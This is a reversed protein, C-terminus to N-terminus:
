MSYDSFILYKSNLLFYFLNIFLYYLSQAVVLDNYCKIENFCVFLKVCILIEFLNIVNSIKDLSMKQNEGGVMTVRYLINLVEIILVIRLFNFIM